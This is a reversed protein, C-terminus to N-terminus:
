WQEDARVLRRCVRRYRNSPRRRRAHVYAHPARAREHCDASSALVTTGSGAGGRRVVVFAEDEEEEERRDTYTYLIYLCTYVYGRRHKPDLANRGCTFGIPMGIRARTRYVRIRNNNNNNHTSRLSVFTVIFFRRRCVSTATYTVRLLAYPKVSAPTM